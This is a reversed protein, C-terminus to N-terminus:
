ISRRSQFKERELKIVEQIEKIDSQNTQISLFTDAVKHFASYHVNNEFAHKWLTLDTNSLMLDMQFYCEIQSYPNLEICTQLAQNAQEYNEQQRYEKAQLLYIRHDYPSKKQMKNLLEQSNQYKSDYLHFYTDRLYLSQTANLLLRKALVPQETKLAQYGLFNFGLFCEYFAIIVLMTALTTKIPIYLKSSSLTDQFKFSSLNPLMSILGLLIIFNALFNLNSDLHEHIIVALLSLFIYSNKQDQKCYSIFLFVLILTFAIFGIVGRELLIQLSLNHPHLSTQFPATQAEQVVKSFGKDGIGLLPSKGLNDKAVEWFFFRENISTKKEDANLTVKNYYSEVEFNTFYQKSFNLLNFLLFGSVITVLFSKWPLKTKKILSIGITCFVSVLLALIAARSFSLLLTAFILSSYIYASKNSQAKYIFYPLVLLTFLAYANPYFSLPDQISQFVGAFRLKSTTFFIYTGMCINIIVGGKFIPDKYKEFLLRILPLTFVVGLFIFPWGFAYFKDIAFFSSLVGLSAFGILLYDIQYFTKLYGKLDKYLFLTVLCFLFIIQADWNYGGSRFILFLLSIFCPIQFLKSKIM